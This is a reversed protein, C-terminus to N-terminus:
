LYNELFLVTLLQFCFVDGSFLLEKFDNSFKRINWKQYWVTIKENLSNKKFDVFIKFLITIKFSDLWFRNIFDKLEWEFRRALMFAYNEKFRMFTKSDWITKLCIEFFVFFNYYNVLDCKKLFVHLWYFFISKNM